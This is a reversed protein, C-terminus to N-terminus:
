KKLHSKLGKVNKAVQLKMIVIGGHLLNYFKVKRITYFEDFEACRSRDIQAAGNNRLLTVGTNQPVFPDYNGSEPILSGLPGPWFDNGIRFM